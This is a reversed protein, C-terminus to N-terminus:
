LDYIAVDSSSYVLLINNDPKMLKAKKDKRPSNFNALITQTNADLVYVIDTTCISVLDNNLISVSEINKIKLNVCKKKGFFKQIYSCNNNYIIIKNKNYLKFKMDNNLLSPIIGKKPIINKIKKFSLQKLDFVCLYKENISVVCLYIEMKTRISRNQKNNNRPKKPDPTILFINKPPYSFTFSNNQALDIEKILNYSKKQEIEYLLIKYSQLLFLITKNELVLIKADIIPTGKDNPIIEQCYYSYKNTSSTSNIKQLSLSDIKTSFKDNLSDKPDQPFTLYNTIDIKKKKFSSISAEEESDESSDNRKRKKKLTSSSNSSLNIKIDKKM